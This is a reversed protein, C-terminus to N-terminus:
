EKPEALVLFGADWKHAVHLLSARRKCNYERLVLVVECKDSSLGVQKTILLPNKRQADPNAAAWRAGKDPKVEKFGMADLLGPIEPTTFNRGLGVPRVRSFDANPDQGPFLEDGRSLLEPHVFGDCALETLIRKMPSLSAEIQRLLALSAEESGSALLAALRPFQSFDIM